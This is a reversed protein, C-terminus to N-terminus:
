TKELNEKKSFGLMKQVADEKHRGSLDRWLEFFKNTSMSGRLVNLKVMTSDVRDQDKWKEGSLVVAPITEWGLVKASKWRHEGGVILFNGDDRPVVQLVDLMGDEDLSETLLDFEHDSMSNPNKSNAVLKDVPVVMIEADDSLKFRNESM